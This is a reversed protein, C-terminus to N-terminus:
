NKRVSFFVIGVIMYMWWELSLTWVPRASGFPNIHLIEGLPTGNLFIYEGFLM